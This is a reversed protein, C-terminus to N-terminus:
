GKNELGHQHNGFDSTADLHEVTQERTLWEMVNCAVSTLSEQRYNEADSKNGKKFLPTINALTLDKPVKITSLSKRFILSYHLTICSHSCLEETRNFPIGDAGQSKCEALRQLAKRVAAENQDIRADALDKVHETRLSQETRLSEHIPM